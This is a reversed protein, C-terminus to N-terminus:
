ADAPGGVPLEVTIETGIGLQSRLRIEGNHRTVIEKAISLGLGTGGSERSRAKDVRYFREFVHEVDKDPIGIGNDRVTCWVREGEYGATVSIRGGSPTYKMANTVMNLLVQEIRAKDGRIEPIGEQLALCFDHGQKQAEMRVANYVDEVSQAFSFQEFSFGFSGADFRSLTLLDQVIKTMRDSERLIVGLFEERTAGDLEEGAEVLTEAYSRVSTIPTRLEHSVNAVFEKRNEESRRMDDISKELQGAMDSFTRTLIGIEDTAPNEPKGAFDGEAMREAARTLSQIPSVLTKALILGLAVAIVLGVMLAELIIRLLQSTLAQVSAKNDRIYVIFRNEGGEGAVPLAVDMYSASSDYAYGNEGALATLINPTAELPGTVASSGALCVGTEGSLIYYNREGSDIGLQGSYALLIDAMQRAPDEGDAATRLGDALESSSFVTQMQQYFEELYFNRIERILFLGVVTMLSIIVLLIMLVLKTYLSRNM